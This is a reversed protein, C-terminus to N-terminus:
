IGSVEWRASSRRSGKGATRTPPLAPWGWRRRRPLFYSVTFGHTEVGLGIWGRVPRSFKGVTIKQRGLRPKFDEQFILGRNCRPSSEDAVGHNFIPRDRPSFTDSIVPYPTNSRFCQLNSQPLLNYIAALPSLNAAARGSFAALGGLNAALSGWFAAPTGCNAATM